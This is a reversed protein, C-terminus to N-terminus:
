NEMKFSLMFTVKTLNTFQKKLIKIILIGQLILNASSISHKLVQLIRLNGQKTAVIRNLKIM